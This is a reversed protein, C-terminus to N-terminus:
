LPREERRVGQLPLVRPSAMIVHFGVGALVFFFFLLKSWGCRNMGDLRADGGIIDSNRKGLGALTQEM